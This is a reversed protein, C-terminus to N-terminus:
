SPFNPWYEPAICYLPCPCVKRSHLLSIHCLAESDAAQKNGSSDNRQWVVTPQQTQNYIQLKQHTIFIFSREVCRCIVTVAAHHWVRLWNRKKEKDKGKLQTSGSQLFHLAHESVGSHLNAFEMMVKFSPFLPVLIIQQWVGMRIFLLM